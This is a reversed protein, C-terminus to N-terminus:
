KSLKQMTNRAWETFRPDLSLAICQQLDALAEAKKGQEEYASARNGYFTAVSPDLEIARSFDAIASDHQGKNFYAWGRNNYAVALNPDLEIARSCDAIASDWKEKNLRGAARDVYAMALGDDIHLWTQLVYGTESTDWILWKTESKVNFFMVSILNIDSINPYSKM